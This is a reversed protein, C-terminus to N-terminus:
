FTTLLLLCKCRQKMRLVQDEFDLRSKEGQMSGYLM